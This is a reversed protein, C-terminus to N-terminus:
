GHSCFHSVFQRDLATVLTVLIAVGFGLQVLRVLSDIFLNKFSYPLAWLHILFGLSLIVLDLV